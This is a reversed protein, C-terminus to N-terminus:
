RDAQEWEEILAQYVGASIASVSTAPDVDYTPNEYGADVLANRFDGDTFDPIDHRVIPVAVAEALMFSSYTVTLADEDRSGAVKENAVWDVDGVADWSSVGITLLQDLPSGSPSLNPNSDNLNNLWAQFDSDFDNSAFTQGDLADFYEASSQGLILLGTASETPDAYGVNIDGFTASGGADGWATGATDGLCRWVPSEPAANCVDLILPDIRPTPGVLDLPSTALVDSPEGLVAGRNDRELGENVLGPWPQLTLWGDIDSESPRFAPDTLRAATVGAEEVDFSISDDEEALATCAAELETACILHTEGDDGAGGGGGGGGGGGDGTLAGRILVAAGIMAVAGLVALLRKM